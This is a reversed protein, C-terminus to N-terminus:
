VFDGVGFILFSILFRILLSRGATQNGRILPFGGRGRLYLYGVLIDLGIECVGRAKHLDVGVDTVVCEAIGYRFNRLSDEAYCM